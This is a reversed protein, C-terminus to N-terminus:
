ALIVSDINTIIGEKIEPVNMATIVTRNQISILLALNDLLVLSDKSGKSEAKNVANQIKSLDEKDLQIDRSELRKQAHASFKLDADNKINQDLITKFNLNNPPNNHNTPSIGRIISPDNTIKNIESIKDSM